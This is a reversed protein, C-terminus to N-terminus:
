ASGDHSRARGWFRCGSNTAPYYELACGSEWPFHWWCSPAFYHFRGLRRVLALLVLRGLLDHGLSGAIVELHHALRDELRADGPLNDLVLPRADVVGKAAEIVSPDSRKRLGLHRIEAGVRADDAVAAFDHGDDVVRTRHQVELLLM